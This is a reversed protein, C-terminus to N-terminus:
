PAAGLDPQRQLVGGSKPTVTDGPAAEGSPPANFVGGSKPTVTDNPTPFTPQTEFTGGGGPPVVTANRPIPQGEFTWGGTPPPTVTITYRLTFDGTDSVVNTHAGAGWGVPEYSQGPPEYFKILNGIVDNNSGLVCIVSYDKSPVINLYKYIAELWNLRPDKFTEVLKERAYEYGKFKARGCEDIEQGATFISLPMTKPLYVTVETGPEFYITEGESADGLGDRPMEPGGFRIITSSSETLDVRIGQVLASIDYEANNYSTTEHNENVTISDFTVTVKYPFSISNDTIIIGRSLNEQSTTNPRPTDDTRNSTQNDPTLNSPTMTISEPSTTSTTINSSDESSTAASIGAPVVLIAVAIIALVSICIAVM